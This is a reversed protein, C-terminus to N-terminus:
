PDSSGGDQGEVDGPRDRHHSAGGIGGQGTKKLSRDPEEAQRSIHEPQHKQGEAAPVGVAAKGADILIKLIDM